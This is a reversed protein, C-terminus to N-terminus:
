EGRLWLQFEFRFNKTNLEEAQQTQLFYKEKCYRMLTRPQEAGGSGQGSPHGPGLSKGPTPASPIIMEGHSNISICGLDIGKLWTALQVSRTIWDPHPQYQGQLLSFSYGQAVPLSLFIEYKLGSDHCGPHLPYSALSCACHGSAPQKRTM